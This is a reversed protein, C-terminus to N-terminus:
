VTYTVTFGWYNTTMHTLYLEVNGTTKINASQESATPNGKTNFAFPLEIPPRADVPLTAMTKFSGKPIYTNGSSNGVVTVVNGLKRYKVTASLEIWGTDETIIKPYVDENGIELQIEMGM